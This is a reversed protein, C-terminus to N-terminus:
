VVDGEANRRRRSLQLPAERRAGFRDELGQRSTAFPEFVFGALDLDLLSRVGQEGLALWQPHLEVIGVLVQVVVDLIEIAGLYLLQFLLEDVLGCASSRERLQLM